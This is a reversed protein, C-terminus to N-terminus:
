KTLVQFTNKDECTYSIAISFIICKIRCDILYSIDSNKIEILFCTYNLM